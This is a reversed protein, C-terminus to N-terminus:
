KKAETIGSDAHDAFAEFPIKLFVNGGVVNTDASAYYFGSIGAKLGNHSIVNVGLQPGWFTNSQGLFLTDATAGGQAPIDFSYNFGFQRDVGIGIFPTWFVWGSPIVGVLRATVGLDTYSVKETGYVFGATDTFGSDREDSYSATGVLNLFVAYRSSIDEPPAKTPMASSRPTAGLLPIWDGAIFGVSYGHGTTNGSGGDINNTVANHSFDVSANGNLYYHNHSYTVSGSLQYDDNDVSAANAVGPTLASTGYRTDTRVYGFNFNFLLHQDGDYGVIRTGDAALNIGGGGSFSRFGPLQGSITGNSDTVQYGSNHASAFGGAVYSGGTGDSSYLSVSPGGLYSGGGNAGSYAGEGPSPGGLVESIIQGWPDYLPNFNTEDPDNVRFPVGSSFGACINSGGSSGGSCYLAGGFVIVTGGNSTCTQQSVCALAAAPLALLFAGVASLGFLVNYHVSRRQSPKNNPLVPLSVWNHCRARRIFAQSIGLTAQIIFQTLGRRRSSSSANQREPIHARRDANKKIIAIALEGM